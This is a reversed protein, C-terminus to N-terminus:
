GTHVQSRPNAEANQGGTPTSQPVDGDSMGYNYIRNQRAERREERRARRERVEQRYEKVSQRYAREWAEGIMSRWHDWDPRRPKEQARNKLEALQEFTLGALWTRASAEDRPCQNELPVPPPPLAVPAEDEIAFKKKDVEAEVKETLDSLVNEYEALVTDRCDAPLQPMVAHLFRTFRELVQGNTFTKPARRAYEDPNRRELVWAAARWYKEQDTARDILRLAKGDARSEAAALEAAFQPDRAAARAITRHCCGVERAAMRRSGGLRVLAVVTARKVPDLAERPDPARLEGASDAPIIEVTTESPILNNEPPSSMGSALNEGNQSLDARIAFDLPLLESIPPLVDM